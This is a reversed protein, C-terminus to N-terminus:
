LIMNSFRIVEQGNQICCNHRFESHQMITLSIWSEESHSVIEEVVTCYERQSPLNEWLAYQSWFVSELLSSGRPCCAEVLAIIKSNIQVNIEWPNLSRSFLFYMKEDGHRWPRACPRAGYINVLPSFLTYTRKFKITVLWTQTLIYLWLLSNFQKRTTREGPKTQKQQCYENNRM